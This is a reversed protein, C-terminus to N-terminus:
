MTVFAKITNMTHIKIVSQNTNLIMGNKQKNFHNIKIKNM